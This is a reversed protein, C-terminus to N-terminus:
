KLQAMQVLLEEKVQKRLAPLHNAEVEACLKERLKNKVRALFAQGEATKAQDNAGKKAQEQAEDRFRTKYATVMEARITDEIINVQEQRFMEIAEEMM